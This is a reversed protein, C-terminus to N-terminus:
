GHLSLFINGTSEVSTTSGKYLSASKCKRFLFTTERYLWFLYRTGKSDIVNSFSLFTLYVKTM